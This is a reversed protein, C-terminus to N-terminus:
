NRYLGAINNRLQCEFAQSPHSLIDTVICDPLITEERNDTLINSECVKMATDVNSCATVEFGSESLYEGLAQRIPQEDDVIVVWQKQDNDHKFITTRDIENNSKDKAANLIPPITAQTRYRQHPFCARNHPHQSWSACM